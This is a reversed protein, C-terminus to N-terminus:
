VRVSFAGTIPPVELDFGNERIANFAVELALGVAAIWRKKIPPHPVLFGTTFFGSKM